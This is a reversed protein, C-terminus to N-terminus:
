DKEVTPNMNAFGGGLGAERLRRAVLSEVEHNEKTPTITIATPTVDVSINRTIESRRLSQCALLMLAVIIVLASLGVIIKRKM